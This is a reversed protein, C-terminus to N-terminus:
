DRGYPKQAGDSHDGGNWRYITACLLLDVLHGDAAMPLIIRELHVVQDIHPMLPRGRYWDPERSEVVRTLMTLIPPPVAGNAYLEDLWKGPRAISNGVRVEGGILRFRFRLPRRTVDLMWVNPLIRRFAAPDIHQRGPLVGAAGPHIAQWHAWLIRLKAHMTEADPTM